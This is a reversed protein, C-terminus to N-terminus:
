GGTAGDGVPTDATIDVKDLDKHTPGTLMVGDASYRSGHCPCDWTEEADNWSVFCGIHRCSPNVAHLLGSRDRAVAVQDGGIRAVKSQGPAIDSIKEHSRMIRPVVLHRTSELTQSVMGGLQRVDKRTSDFLPLWEPKRGLILETLMLAAATGNTMGWAGFGTAVYVNHTFSTLPGVYPIRDSATYDHAEWRYDVSTM